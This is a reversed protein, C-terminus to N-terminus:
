IILHLKEEGRKIILKLMGKPTNSLIDRLDHIQKPAYEKGNANLIVDGNRLGDKILDKDDNYFFEIHNNIHRISYERVQIANVMELTNADYCFMMRTPIFSYREFRSLFDMGLIYKNDIEIFNQEGLPMNNYTLGSLIVKPANSIIKDVELYTSKGDNKLYSKNNLYDIFDESLSSTNSATNILFAIDSIEEHNLNLMPMSNTRDYYGDCTQYNWISPAEKTVVVRKNINDIQWSFKRFSEIGILGNIDVGSSQSLFSLDASLWIDEDKIEQTGIFYPQAKLFIPKNKDIPENSITFTSFFRQHSPHLENFSYPTSVQTSIKEDIVNVSAGTAVLFNYKKNKITVPIIINENIDCELIIEPLYSKSSKKNGTENHCAVLGISSALLFLKSFIKVSNKM